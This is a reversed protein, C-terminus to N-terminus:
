TRMSSRANIRPPLACRNKRGYYEGFLPAGPLSTRDFSVTRETPRLSFFGVRGIKESRESAWSLELSSLRALRAAQTGSQQACVRELTGFGVTLRGIAGLFGPAMTSGVSEMM